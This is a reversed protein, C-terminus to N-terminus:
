FLIGAELAIRTQTRGNGQPGFAYGPTTSTARVYSVEPRAFFLGTQYSPTFTASVAGSGPGYLLNPSGDARGGSSAIAELRGALGIGTRPLALNALLGAGWTSAAKAFGLSAGSKTEAFQGYAQVTWPGSTFTYAVNDLQRDNDQALPTATSGYGTRGANGSVTLSAANSPNLTWTLMGSLWNYRSSYFGDNWSLSGALPGGAYNAQIGRTVPIEQSWLLGRFINMNEFTFPYEVGIIGPLKGAEFSFSDSPALKLYALPVPGYLDKTETTSDVYGAGLEPFAYVGAEFFFQVKGDAKQIFVQANDLNARTDRDGPVPSDQGLVLGTLAGSVYIAGVDPV